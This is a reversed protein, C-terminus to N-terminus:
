VKNIEQLIFDIREELPAAKVIVPQMGYETYADILPQHIQKGFDDPETRAYDREFTDLPALVFVKKYFSKQLLEMIWDEATFGYHRMYALTDHMGRDFFTPVAPNAQEEIEQKLLAIDRQFKDEDSRLEDASIGKAAAEDIITRAAEPITLYGRRALEAITTSKGVSPGGTIVYWNNDAM